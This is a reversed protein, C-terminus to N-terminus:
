APTARWVARPNRREGLLLYLLFCLVAAGLPAQYLDEYATYRVTGVESQEMRKLEEVLEVIGTNSSSARVFSGNGVSAIRRLLPENLRSVVTNGQRDKRFAPPQGNRPIPIAGGQVTGIGVTHVVIGEAAAAEAAAVAGDEHDEGDTIVLIAKGGAREPDFSQRALDIAAGIATGQTPVSHTGITRIFLKAASRDTTIPLQMYAEGAFVVIGLRDGQLRDVLQLMARRTAMMRSPKLDQCEMSNSVDVCLMLDIGRAKVTEPRSGLQPSMLALAALATGSRMLLYRAMVRGASVGPVMRPLTEISAFRRLARERWAVEIIFSLLVVPGALLAIRLHPQAFHFSPILRDLWWWLAFGCISILAEFAIATWALVNWHYTARDSM